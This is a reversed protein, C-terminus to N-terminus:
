FMPFFPSVVYPTEEIPNQNETSSILDDLIALWLQSTLPESYTLPGLRQPFLVWFEADALNYFRQRLNLYRSKDYNGLERRAKPTLYQLRDLLEDPSIPAEWQHSHRNIEHYLGWFFQPDVQLKKCRDRISNIGMEDKSPPSPPDFNLIPNGTSIPSAASGSYDSPSPSLLPSSSLSPATTHCSGLEITLLLIACLRTSSEIKSVFRFRM